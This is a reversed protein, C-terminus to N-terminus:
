IEVAKKIQKLHHEYHSGGENMTYNADNEEELLWDFLDPRSKLNYYGIRDIEESAKKQWMEWEAILQGPTYDKYFEVAKANFDDYDSNKMFWPVQKTEWTPQNNRLVRKGLRDHSSGCGECDVKCHGNQELRRAKTDKPLCYFGHNNTQWNKKQGAL